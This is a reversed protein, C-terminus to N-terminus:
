HVLRNMFVVTWIAHALSLAAVLVAVLRERPRVRTAGRHTLIAKAQTLTHATLRESVPPPPLRQLQNLLDTM